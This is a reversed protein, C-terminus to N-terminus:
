PAPEVSLFNSRPSETEGDFATVAVYLEGDAPVDPVLHRYLRGEKPDEITELRTTAVEVRELLADPSRGYYIVYQPSPDEPIKWTVELAPSQATVLPLEHSQKDTVSASVSPARAPADAGADVQPTVDAAASDQFETSNGFIAREVGGLASCGALTSGILSILVSIAV